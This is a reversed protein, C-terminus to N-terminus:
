RGAEIAAECAVADTDAGSALRADIHTVREVGQGKEPPYLYADLVCGGGRYQLKLGPGERVQFAPSGFVEGLDSISLGILRGHGHSGKAPVAAPTVVPAPTESACAALFLTLVPVIRRM